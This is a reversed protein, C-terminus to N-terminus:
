LPQQREKFGHHKEEVFGGEVFEVPLPPDTMVSKLDWKIIDQSEPDPLTSFGILVTTRIKKEPSLRGVCEVSEWEIRKTRLHSLIKPFNDQFARSEKSRESVPYSKTPDLEEDISFKDYQNSDDIPLEAQTSGDTPLEM